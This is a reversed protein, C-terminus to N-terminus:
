FDQVIWDPVRDSQFRPFDSKEVARQKLAESSDVLKTERKINKRAGAIASKLM